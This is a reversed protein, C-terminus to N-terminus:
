QNEHHSCCETPLADMQMKINVESAECLFLTEGDVEGHPAFRVQTSGM